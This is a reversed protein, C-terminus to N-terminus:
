TVRERSEFKLISFYVFYLKPGFYLIKFILPIFIFVVSIRFAIKTKFFAHNSYFFVRPKIGLTLDPGKM